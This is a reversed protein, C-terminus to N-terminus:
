KEGYIVIASADIAVKGAAYRQNILEFVENRVKAKTAEDAKSLAAVVPAVVESM